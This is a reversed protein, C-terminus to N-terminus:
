DYGEVIIVDARSCPQRLARAAHYEPSDWCAQADALSDFEIVICRPRQEGEVVQQAGGRVLFRAGYKTFAAANAQRYAEYADPDDITVHGIWYAKPM